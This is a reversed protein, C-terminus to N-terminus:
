YFTHVQTYFLSVTKIPQTCDIMNKDPKGYVKVYIAAKLKFSNPCFSTSNYREKVCAKFQYLINIHCSSVSSIMHKHSTM